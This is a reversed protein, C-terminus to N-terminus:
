GLTLGLYGENFGDNPLNQPFLVMGGKNRAYACKVNITDMLNPLWKLLKEEEM